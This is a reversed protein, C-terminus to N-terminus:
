ILNSAKCMRRITKEDLKNELAVSAVTRHMAEIKVYKVFRKTARHCAHMASIKEYFTKKCTICQYRQRYIFLKVAKEQVPVDTYMHLRKGFKLLETSQCSPCYKSIQAVSAFINYHVANEEVSSINLSPPGTMM